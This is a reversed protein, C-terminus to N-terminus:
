PGTPTDPTLLAPLRDTIAYVRGGIRRAPLAGTKAYRYASARSLGLLGAAVTIPILAPLGAFLDSLRPRLDDARVVLHVGHTALDLGHGQM